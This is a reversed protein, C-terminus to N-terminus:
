PPSSVEALPGIGAPRQTASAGRFRLQSGTWASAHVYPSLSSQTAACRPGAACQQCGPGAKMRAMQAGLSWSTSEGRLLMHVGVQQVPFGPQDAIVGVM